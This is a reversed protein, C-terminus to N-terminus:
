RDLMSIRVEKHRGLDAVEQGDRFHQDLRDRDAGPTM